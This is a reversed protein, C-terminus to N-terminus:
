RRRIQILKRNFPLHIRSIEEKPFNIMSYEIEAVSPYRLEDWEFSGM